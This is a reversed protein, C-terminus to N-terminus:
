HHDGGGHKEYYEAMAERQIARKHQVEPYVRSIYTGTYMTICIGIMSHWLLVASNERTAPHYKAYARACTTAWTQKYFAPNFLKAVASSM